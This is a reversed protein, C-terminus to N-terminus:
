KLGAGLATSPMKGYDWTSFYSPTIEVVIYSGKRVSDIFSAFMPHGKKIYRALIKEVIALTEAEALESVEGKGRVGKYPWRDQDVDFYIRRRKGINRAKKSNKAVFAYLKQGRPEFYYWVPHINPDGSDDITGLRIVSRSETLFEQAEADTM